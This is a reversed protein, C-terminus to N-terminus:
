RPCPGTGRRSMEVVHRGHKVPGDVDEDPKPASAIYGGSVSGGLAVYEPESSLLRLASSTSIAEASLSSASALIVSMILLIWPYRSACSGSSLSTGMNL